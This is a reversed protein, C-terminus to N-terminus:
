GFGLSSGIARGMSFGPTGSSTGNNSSLAKAIGNKAQGIASLGGAETATSAYRIKKFTIEFDTIMRTESDQIARLSKIAMNTLIVWPTQVNFLTRKYWYGYLQQFMKQQLNQPTGLGVRFVNDTGPIPENNEMTILGFAGVAANAAKQITQYAYLAENYRQQATISLQPTFAGIPVLTQSVMHVLNLAPPPVDNLEGIFGHVTITEPKLGIHDEMSSNNEVWHDTIDSEMAAVNEGEYHFVLATSPAQPTVKGTPDPPNLPQYGVTTAPSVLVLNGLAGIAGAVSSLANLATTGKAVNAPTLAM